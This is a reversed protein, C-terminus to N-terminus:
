YEIIFFKISSPRSSDIGIENKLEDLLIIQIDDIKLNKNYKLKIYNSIDILSMSKDNKMLANMIMESKSLDIIPKNNELIFYQYTLKDFHVKNRLQHYITKNIDSINYIVNSDLLKLKEFIERSKLKEGRRLVEIILEKLLM